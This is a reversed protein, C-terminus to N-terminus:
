RTAATGPMSVDYYRAHPAPAAMLVALTREKAASQGASGWFVTVGGGLHLTVDGAAPATVSVVRKALHAPLQRVVTAAAAVAPSGRVPGSPLFLALLRPRRRVSAVTVGDPDILQYGGAGRVALAPVRETVAIDIGDPWSRSVQASSVQTIAEVRRSVASTNVRILPIGPQIGAAAIVQPRTVRHLGTVTVARVVLLRSGVLAWAVAAVIGAAALLVFVTKWPDRGPRCAPSRPAGPARRSSRLTAAPM